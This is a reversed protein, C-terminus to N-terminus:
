MLENELVSMVALSLYKGDLYVSERLIGELVFGELEYVHKARPNNSRVDLWLRHAGLQGLALIKILRLTDKGYGKGKDTIVLRKLEISHNSNKLGALIAFGILRNDQKTLVLLHLLDPNALSARHEELTWQGVFPSNEPDRESNIVYELNKLDTRQLVIRNNEELITGM